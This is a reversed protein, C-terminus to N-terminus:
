LASHTELSKLHSALTGILSGLLPVLDVGGCLRYCSPEKFADIGHIRHVLLTWRVRSCVHIVRTPLPLSHVFRWLFMLGHKTISQLEFM